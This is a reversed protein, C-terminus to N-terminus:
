FHELIEEALPQPLMNIIVIAGKRQKYAQALLHELKNADSNYSVEFLPIIHGPVVFLDGASQRPDLRMFKVCHPRTFVDYPDIARCIEDFYYEFRDMEPFDVFWTEQNEYAFQYRGFAYICTHGLAYVISTMPRTNPWRNKIYIELSTHNM